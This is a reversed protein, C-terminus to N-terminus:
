DDDMGYMMEACRAYGCIDVTSERSFTRRGRAVKLLVMMHAVDLKNIDLGLFETWLGAIVGFCENMDGYELRRAGQVIREAEELISFESM